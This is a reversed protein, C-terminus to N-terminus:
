AAKVRRIRRPAHLAHYQRGSSLKMILRAQPAQPPQSQATVARHRRQDAAALPVLPWAFTSQLSGGGALGM